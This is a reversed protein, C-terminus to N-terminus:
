LLSGMTTSFTRSKCVMDLLLKYLTVRVSPFRAFRKKPHCVSLFEALSWISALSASVCCAIRYFLVSYEFVCCPFFRGLAADMLGAHM